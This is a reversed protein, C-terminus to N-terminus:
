VITELFARIADILRGPAELQPLHAVGVLETFRADPVMAV